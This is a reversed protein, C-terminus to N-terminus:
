RPLAMVGGLDQQPWHSLTRLSTADLEHIGALPAPLMVALRQGREDLVWALMPGAPSPWRAAPAAAEPTWRSLESAGTRSGTSVWFSAGDPSAQLGTVPAPQVWRRLQQWRQTDIFVLGDGDAAVLVPTATGLGLMAGAAPAAASPGLPLDAMVRLPLEAIVRRVDLHWVVRREGQRALVWPVRGDAGLEALPAALPTRRRGLYGPEPIGEGSRHDHVWGEFSPEALPDYRIEWAEALGHLAVVFSSRSAVVALGQVRGPRGQQDAVVWRRLLRGDTDLASLSGGHAVLLVQGDHSAALAEAPEPPTLPPLKSGTALDAGHLSGDAAVWRCVTADRVLVPPQQLRQPLTSCWRAAASGSDFRCLRHPGFALWDALAAPASGLLGAAVLAAPWRRHWRGARGGGM